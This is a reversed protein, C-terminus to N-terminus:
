KHCNMNGEIQGLAMSWIKRPAVQLEKAVQLCDEWEPMQNMLEGQLWGEKIKIPKGLVEVTIFRRDLITREIQWRRIGLTPIRSFIISEAQPRLMESVIASLLIGPRGKKMQISTLWVDLCGIQLLSEQLEPLFQPNSDDVQTELTWLKEASEDADLGLYGRLVNPFNLDWKGAGYGLSKTSFDMPREGWFDVLEALLAAGTPTLLEKPIEGQQYPIGILLEATAPAPIPMVGHACEMWGRGVQLSDASVSTIQLRDLCWCGGLIDVIADVAGVEHFHVEDPGIGHVIGEAVALRHFVNCARNKVEDSASSKGIIEIIEPLFRSQAKEEVLHVDFYSAMVGNKNVKEYSLDFEGLSLSDIFSKFEDWSIGLDLCLGVLMNGSMGASCDLHLRAM